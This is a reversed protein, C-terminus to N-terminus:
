GGMKRIGKVIEKIVTDAGKKDGNLNEINVHLEYNNTNTTSGVVGLNSAVSSRVINPVISKVKDLLKMVNLLDSTERKDLILEKDDVIALGGSSPLNGTYGGTDFKQIGNKKLIELFMNYFKMHDPSQIDLPIGSQAKRWIENMRYENIGSSQIMKYLYEKEPTPTMLAEGNYAKKILSSVSVPSIPEGLSVTGGTSTLGGGSTTIGIMSNIDQIMANIEQVFNRVQESYSAFGESLSSFTGDNLQELSIGMKELEQRLTEFNGKMLDERVKAWRTEDNIMSEYNESVADREKELQEIRSDHAEQEIEKQQDVKELLMDKEESLQDKLLERQHDKIFKDIEKQMKDIEDQTEKLKKRGELSTDQMYLTEKNKLEALAKNKEALEQQYTEEEYADDIAKIRQDYLDSIRKSEEDYMKMKAKHAEEASKIESDYAKEASKQLEKYYDKMKDIINDAIAKRMDKIEKEARLIELTVDEWQEKYEELQKTMDKVVQSTGGFKKSAERLKEEAEKQTQALKSQEKSLERIKATLLEVKKIENDPDTLELVELEFDIDDVRKEIASIAEDWANTVEEIVSMFMEKTKNALDVSVQELETKYQYIKDLNSEYQQQLENYEDRQKKNHKSINSLAKLRTNIKKNSEETAKLDKQIVKVRSNESIIIQNLTKRYQKSTKDLGSLRAEFKSIQAEWAKIARENYNIKVLDAIKEEEEKKKKSSTTRSSSSSTKKTTTALAYFDYGGDFNYAGTLIRPTSPVLTGSTGSDSSGSEGGEGSTAGFSGGVVSSEGSTKTSLRKLLEIHEPNIGLIKGTEEWLELGRERRKPILPIIAEAGEEGHWALEMKDVIGGNAYQPINVRPSTVTPNVNTNAVSRAMENMASTVQSMNSRIASAIRQPILRARNVLTDIGKQFESNMVSTMSNIRSGVSRSLTAFSANISNLKSKTNKDMNALSQVNKAYQNIIISTANTIAQTLANYSAGTSTSVSNLATAYANTMNSSNEFALRVENIKDVVPQAYQATLMFNNFLTTLAGAYNTIPTTDLYNNLNDKFTALKGNINLFATGVADLESVVNGTSFESGLSKLNSNLEGYKNGIDDFGKLVIEIENNVPSLTSDNISNINDKVNLAENGIDKLGTKTNEFSQLPPTFRNNIFDNMNTKTNDLEKNFEGLTNSQIPTQISGKLNEVSGGIFDNIKANTSDIDSKLGNLLQPNATAISILQRLIQVNDRTFAIEGNVVELEAMTDDLFQVGTSQGFAIGLEGLKGILGNIKQEISLGMNDLYAVSGKINTLDMEPIKITSTTFPSEIKEQIQQVSNDVEEITRMATGTIIDKIGNWALLVKKQDPALDSNNIFEQWSTKTDYESLNLKGLADIIDYYKDKNNELETATVGLFKSLAEQSARYSETQKGAEGMVDVLLSMNQLHSKMGAIEGGSYGFLTQTLDIAEMAEENLSELSGTTEDIGRASLEAKIALNDNERALRFLYGQAEEASLGALRLRMIFDDTSDATAGQIEHSVNIIEKLGNVIDDSSKVVRGSEDTLSLFTKPLSKSILDLENRINDLGMTDSPDVQKSLIDYADVFVEGVQKGMEYMGMFANEFNDSYRIVSENYQIFDEVIKQQSDGLSKIMGNSEFYAMTQNQITKITTKIAETMEAQAMLTEVKNEQMAKTNDKIETGMTVQSDGDRRSYTNTIVKGDEDQLKKQTNKLKEIKKRVEEFSKAQEKMNETFKIVDLEAQAKSLERVANVEKRIQETNKMHAEGNADIYEVTTPIKEALEKQIRNYEEAEEKTLKAKSNLEDYRDVVEDMGNRYSRYGEVMKKNLSELEEAKRKADAISNAIKEILVGLAMFAVGIGTGIALSRLTIGFAKAGTTAGAEAVTVANWGAKIGDTVKATNGVKSMENKYATSFTGIGERVNKISALIGDFVGFKHLLLSTTGFVIPLTGFSDSVAIGAEALKKLLEITLMLGDSLISDGVASALDTWTNKLSNIRAEFSKLYEANERMASGESYVATTTAEQAMQYNNMLALFRSLQYRGAVKVAINQREADSIRNWREALDTLIDNVPRVNGELDTIAVGVDQLVAKSDDLTTLRSYITKLSNGIVNGSEM